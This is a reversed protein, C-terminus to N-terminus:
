TPGRSGAVDAIWDVLATHDAIPQAARVLVEPFARELTRAM